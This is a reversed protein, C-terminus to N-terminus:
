EGLKYRLSHMLNSLNVKYSFQVQSVEWRSHLACMTTKWNWCGPVMVGLLYDLQGLGRKEVMLKEESGDTEWRVGALTTVLLVMLANWVSYPM